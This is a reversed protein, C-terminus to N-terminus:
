QLGLIFKLLQQALVKLIIIYQIIIRLDWVQEKSYLNQKLQTIMNLNIYRGGDVNYTRIKKYYNFRQYCHNKKKSDKRKMNLATESLM